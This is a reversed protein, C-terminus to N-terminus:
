RVALRLVAARFLILSEPRWFGDRGIRELDTLLTTAETSTAPAEGPESPPSTWSPGSLDNRMRAAWERAAATPNEAAMVAEYDDQLRKLLNELAVM